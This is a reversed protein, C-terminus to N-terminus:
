KGGVEFHPILEYTDVNTIEYCHDYKKKMYGMFDKQSANEATTNGEVFFDEGDTLTFYAEKEKVNQWELPKLYPKPLNDTRIHLRATDASGTGSVTINAGKTVLLRVGELVTPIWVTRGMLPDNGVTKNYITVTKDYFGNM